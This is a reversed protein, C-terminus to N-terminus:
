DLVAEAIVRVVDYREGEEDTFWGRERRVQVDRVPWRKRLTHAVDAEVGNMFFEDEAAVLEVAVSEAVKM